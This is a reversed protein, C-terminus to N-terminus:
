LRSQTLLAVSADRALGSPLQGEVRGNGLNLVGAFSLYGAPADASSTDRTSNNDLLAARVNLTGMNLVAGAAGLGAHTRQVSNDHIRSHELSLKGYNLVTGADRLNDDLSNYAFESRTAVLEGHNLVIASVRTGTSDVVRSSDLRLKGFNRIAGATGEALSLERVTVDADRQVELLALRGPSYSRIESGNGQITLNGRIAPLLLGPEAERGLVYLGHRALRITEAGPTANAARIANVLARSDHDPIDVQAACSALLSSVVIAFIFHVRM